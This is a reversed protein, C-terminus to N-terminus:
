QCGAPLYSFHGPRAMRIRCRVRCSPPEILLFLIRSLTNRAETATVNNREPQPPAGGAVGEGVGLVVAAVGVIVGEGGEGEGEGEGVGDGEGVKVM